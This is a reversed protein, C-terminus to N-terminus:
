ASARTPKAATLSHLKVRKEVRALLSGDKIMDLIKDMEPRLYRDELVVPSFDQIPKTVAFWQVNSLRDPRQPEYAQIACRIEIAFQEVLDDMIERTWRAQVTGMSNNSEQKCTRPSLSIIPVTLWTGEGDLGQTSYNWIMFGSNRGSNELVLNLPIGDFTGNVLDYTRQASINGLEHMAVGLRHVAVAIPQGHFSAGSLYTV